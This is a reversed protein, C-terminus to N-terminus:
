TMDLQAVEELDPIHGLTTISVLSIYTMLVLLDITVTIFAKFQNARVAGDGGDWEVLRWVSLLNERLAARTHCMEESTNDSHDLSKQVMAAELFELM